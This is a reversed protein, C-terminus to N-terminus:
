SEPPTRTLLRKARALLREPHVPKTLYDDAGTELGTVESELADNVTLIITPISRTSEASKLKEVLAKGDMEPMELDTIILDPREKLALELAEKGNLATIVQYNASELVTEVTKLYLDNDDAVLIRKQEPSSESSPEKGIEPKESRKEKATSPAKSIQEMEPPAVRFLEEITTLGELAKRVGDITMAEFGEQEAVNKLSLSSVGPTILERVSPTVMLIEFIGIRGLYGTYQCAKCGKGKWFTAQEGEQSMYPHLRELIQPSLPDPAKCKRCIKRVLRQGVVMVLANSIVFSEVGLDMLRTIASPSDNTHLSSFVLHGTMGAQLAISATEKDRIEGVMIVDPDHRLISRLGTSFSIGAKTNVEVQNIGQLDYEIPDEVTMINSSRPNLSSLCAYLTTSKGSGTPGTVLILGQPRSIAEEFTSLAKESVGLSNLNVSDQGQNLIRINLQEGYSTPITAIRLDYVRDRYKVQTRGDQPKRRISIDMNSIVKVRSVIAAHVNKDLKSVEQMFGDIRYRVSIHSRGPQIHIDSARVKFADALIANTLRVVPPAETSALLTEVDNDDPVSKAIFQLGLDSTQAPNLINKVYGTPYYKGHAELLERESTVGVEISKQTVFRLDQIAYLDLPNVMAVLLKNATVKVPMMLNSVAMENPVLSTVEKPIEQDRLRIFPIRLQEALANAIDEDSAVGMDALIQGLRKKSKKQIELAKKLTEENILGTKVLCDGLRRHSRPNATGQEPGNM